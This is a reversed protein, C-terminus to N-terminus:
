EFVFFDADELVSGLQAENGIAPRQVLNVVCFIEIPLKAVDTLVNAQFGVQDQGVVSDLLPAIGPGFGALPEQVLAPPAVRRTPKESRNLIRVRKLPHSPDHAVRMGKVAARRGQRRPMTSPNVSNTWSRM